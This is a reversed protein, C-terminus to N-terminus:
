WSFGFFCLACCYMSFIASLVKLIGLAYGNLTVHLNETSKLNRQIIEQWAQWVQRKLSETYVVLISMFAIAILDGVKASGKMEVISGGHQANKCDAEKELM